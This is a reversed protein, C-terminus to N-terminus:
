ILNQLFPNNAEIVRFIELDFKKNPNEASENASAALQWTLAAVQEKLAMVENYLFSIPEELSEDYGGISIKTFQKLQYKLNDIEDKLEQNYVEFEKDGIRISKIAEM